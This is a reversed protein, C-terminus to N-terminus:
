FIRSTIQYVIMAMVYALALLGFTILFTTKASKTERRIVALTSACMPAYVYWALFAFATPLGWSDHVIPILANHVADESGAGVAYVTGLAAVVVERAAIGPVMAICMQWTFGLPAFIPQILHGLMGALSYDIAAGTAGEPASPFSTLAWLVVSVSFIVTGARVLFAKVRDWLSTIIHKFNPMRFTPLEMLLPFQQVNGKSRAMWKLVWATIAASLIGALYLAFLTLGQLNFVGWVTQNPIVAAIILAYIPLRASCTLMPAIAITVLRERPDQITRASMVAPVACAFSSLLPIFARGSLGTRSLLNDLLFAARPLYGSDELLLIFAFLITIQPLFVLVSGTGAIVGNVLLDSLLGQPLTAGVWEGLSDFLGQISDMVPQAWTYVAQFVLLLITLLILMGWFPHMVINDLTRHWPPLKLETQVVQALIDEVQEYLANSDLAELKREAEVPDLKAAHGRPLALAATEVAMVGSKSIAVTELVTAGLLEGLKKADIKLGRSRAVDSLNLSIVM